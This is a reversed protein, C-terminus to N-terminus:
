IPPLVNGTFRAGFYCGGSIHCNRLLIQVYVNDGRLPLCHGPEGFSPELVKNAMPHLQFSGHSHSFGFGLWSKLNMRRGHVYPESHGIVKGGGSALAYDVRGIGDAAHKELELRVIQRAVARLDDLSLNTDRNDSARENVASIILDAGDQRSLIGEDTLKAVASTMSDIRTRFNNLTTELKLIQIRLKNEMDKKVAEVETNLKM